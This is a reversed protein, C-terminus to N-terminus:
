RDPACPRRPAGGAPETSLPVERVLGDEAVTVIGGFVAQAEAALLEPACVGRRSLHTLVLERVGARAAVGAAEAATSHGTEIARAQESSAFTSDHILLDAGAAAQELALSPRTDGSFVVKRGRRPPGMVQAPSITRGGALTVPRGGQLQGWLPGEPIGLARARDVHLEGSRPPEELVYGLAPTHHEVGVARIVYGDRQIRDGDALGTYVTSFSLDEAVGPVVPFQDQGFARPGYIPLPASRASNALMLLFGVIGLYHDGHFHTFLVFDVDFGVGFTLMQRQTGEGCDVLFHDRHARVSTASLGRRATPQAASTGLWTVRLNSM